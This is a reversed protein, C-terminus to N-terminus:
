QLRAIQTENLIEQQLAPGSRRAFLGPVASVCNGEVIRCLTEHIGRLSSPVIRGAKSALRM